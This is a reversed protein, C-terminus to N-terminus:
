RGYEEGMYRGSAPGIGTVWHERTLKMPEMWPRDYDSDAINFNNEYYLVESIVVHRFKSIYKVGKSINVKKEL